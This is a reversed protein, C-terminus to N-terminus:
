AAKAFESTAVAYPTPRGRGSMELIGRRDFIGASTMM